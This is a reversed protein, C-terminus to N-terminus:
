KPRFTRIVWCGILLIPILTLAEYGTLSALTYLLVLGVIVPYYIWKNQTM